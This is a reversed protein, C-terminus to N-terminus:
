IVVCRNRGSNKAKYLADDARKLLTEITQDEKHIETIGISITYSISHDHTQIKEQEILERLREATKEGAVINTQTLAAMFEEGGVRGFVDTTRLTLKCRTVLAKLIDDGAPHGYTDNIRKFHDIDLSLLVMSTNYRKCREFEATLREMFYRRNHAETLPDTSALRRLENEMRRQKTIDRNVGIMRQPIGQSDTQILGATQIVHISKDPHIIRFEFDIHGKQEICTALQREAEVLDEPHVRSKWAEYMGSFEDPEVNYLEMMKQDWHLDDNALDWEWIGINGANTALALRDAVVRLAEENSKLETMDRAEISIYDISKGDMSVPHYTVAMYRRGAAPLDLWSEVKATKGALAKDINAKSIQEYVEPGVLEKISKGIIDKREKKFMKLYSDNVIKYVGNRDVLSILDPTTAVIREYRILAQKAQERERDKKVLDLNLIALEQNAEELKTTRRKVKEELEEHAKELEANSRRRQIIRWIGDMVLRVQRIDDDDYDSDKNGVGALMVIRGEDFVPINAYNRIAIHGEPYRKGEPHNQYDNVIIAKRQRVADTWMGVKTVPDPQLNQEVACQEMVSTSWAHLTLETEENNLFYICGIDSASVKTIAELAFTLIESEPRHTMESITYLAEFRIEALKIEKLAQRHETIDFFSALAATEGAYEIPRANVSVWISKGDVRTLSLHHDRITKNQRLRSRLLERDALNSYFTGTDNGQLDTPTCGMITAAENNCAIIDGTLSIVAMGGPAKNFVLPHLSEEQEKKIVKLREELEAIRKQAADHKQQLDNKVM